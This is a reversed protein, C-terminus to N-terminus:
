GWSLAEDLCTVWSHIQQASLSVINELVLFQLKTVFTKICQSPDASILFSLRLADFEPRDDFLATYKCSPGIVPFPDHTGRVFCEDNVCWFAEKLFENNFPQKALREREMDPLAFVDVGGPIYGMQMALPRAAAAENNMQFFIQQLASIGM